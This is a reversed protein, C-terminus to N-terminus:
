TNKSYKQAPPANEMTKCIRLYSAYRDPSIDGTEVSTRVACHPENKHLCNRFKCQSSLGAIEYFHQQVKLPETFPIESYTFGPTDVLFSEHDLPLLATHTTTNKGRSIASSLTNTKFTRQPFLRQMFTSKGVGSPGAFVATKQKCRTRIEEIGVGSLASATCLTYGINKYRAQIKSLKETGGIHLLDTKNFVLVVPIGHVSSTFLFKDMNWLDLAPEELCNVFFILDVNSVAPKQLKNRRRHLKKIVAKKEDAHDFIEIDVKDGVCLRKTRTRLAGKLLSEYVTDTGTSVLYYNKREEIIKGTSVSM